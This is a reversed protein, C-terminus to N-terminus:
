RAHSSDQEDGARHPPRRRGRSLRFSRAERHHRFSRVPTAAPASRFSVDPLRLRALSRVVIAEAVADPDVMYQSERVLQKLVKTRANMKLERPEPHKIPVAANLALL